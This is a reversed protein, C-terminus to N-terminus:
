PAAGAVQTAQSSVITNFVVDDTGYSSQVKLKMEWWGSMSFKVGGLRYHGDGLNATVAPKTPYGHGHQPMGGSFAISADPVPLGASNTIGIDWAHIQNIGPTDVLPKISVHYLGHSTPRALRLDLEAPLRFM